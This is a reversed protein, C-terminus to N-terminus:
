NRMLMMEEGEKGGTTKGKREEENGREGRARREIRKKEKGTM